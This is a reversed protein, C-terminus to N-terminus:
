RNAHKFEKEAWLQEAMCSHDLYNYDFCNNCEFTIGNGKCDCILKEEVIHEFDKLIDYTEEWWLYNDIKM